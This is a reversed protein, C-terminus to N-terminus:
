KLNYATKSLSEKFHMNSVGQLLRDKSNQENCTALIHCFRVKASKGNCTARMNCFQDETM